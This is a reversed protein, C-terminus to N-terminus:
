RTGPLSVAAEHVLRGGALFQLTVTRTEGQPDPLMLQFPEGGSRASAVRRASRGGASAVVELGDQAAVDFEVILAAAAPQVTVVGKVAPHDIRLVAGDRSAPPQAITGVADRGDIGDLSGSHLFFAGGVLAVALAAVYRLPAHAYRGGAPRGTVPPCSRAQIQRAGALISERAGAPVEVQPVAALAKGLRQMGDRWARADTEALLRRSLEVREPDGLVGDLEAHVLEALREDIM